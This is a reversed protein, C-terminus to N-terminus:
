DDLGPFGHERLAKDFKELRDDIEPGLVTGDRLQIQLPEDPPSIKNAMRRKIEQGDLWTKVQEKFLGLRQHKIAYVKSDDGYLYYARSTRKELELYPPKSKDTLITEPNLSLKLGVLVSKGISHAFLVKDRLLEDPEEFNAILTDVKKLVPIADDLPLNPRPETILEGRYDPMLAQVQSVLRSERPDVYPAEAFYVRM